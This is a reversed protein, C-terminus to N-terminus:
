VCPGEDDCVTTTWILWAIAAASEWGDVAATAVAIVRRIGTCGCTYIAGPGNCIGCADYAGVCPDVDDCLGDSDADTTCDGGCEGVEDLAACSGDEDTALPNYNCANADTCGAVEFPDCVGDGDADALCAGSCDYGADAYTCSGDNETAGAEYNLM